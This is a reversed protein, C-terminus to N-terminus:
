ANNSERGEKFIEGNIVQWWEFVERADGLATHRGEVNREIGLKEALWDTKYPLPIEWQPYRGKLFGVALAEIDILHYHWGAIFEWKKLLKTLRECDFSPIAGVITAGWTLDMFDQCFHRVPSLQSSPLRREHFRGINLAILDAESLDVPLQWTYEKKEQLNTHNPVVVCAVEWIEHCDPDLGTTECDLFILKTM